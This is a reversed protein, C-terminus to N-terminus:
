ERPTPPDPRAGSSSDIHAAPLDAVHADATVPSATRPPNIGLLHACRQRMIPNDVTVILPEPVCETIGASGPRLHTLTGVRVLKGAYGASACGTLPTRMPM